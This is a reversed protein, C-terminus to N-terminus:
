DFSIPLANKTIKCLMKKGEIKLCSNPRSFHLKQSLLQYNKGLARFVVFECVKVSGMLNECVKLAKFLKDWKEWVKLSQAFGTIYVTLHPTMRRCGKMVPLPM